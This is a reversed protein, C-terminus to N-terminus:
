EVKFGTSKGFKEWKDIEKLVVQKFDNPSNSMPIEAGDATIKAQIDPRSLVRKVTQFIIQANASPIRKPAVIGYWSELEFGPVGSESVTPLDPLLKSRKDTTVSLARLKNTKIFQM